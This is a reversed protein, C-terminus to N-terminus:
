ESQFNFKGSGSTCNKYLPLFETQAKKYDSVATKCERFRMKVIDQIDKIVCDKKLPEFLEALTADQWCKCAAEIAMGDGIQTYDFCEEIESIFGEVIPSCEDIKTQNISPPQCNVTINTQYSRLKQVLKKFASEESPCEPAFNEILVTFQTFDM